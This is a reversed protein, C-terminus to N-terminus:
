RYNFLLATCLEALHPTGSYQRATSIARQQWRQHLTEINNPLARGGCQDNHPQGHWTSPSQDLSIEQEIAPYRGLWNYIHNLPKGICAPFLVARDPLRFGALLLLANVEHDCALHWRRLDNVQPARWHGAVCHWALHAQLFRRTVSDLEASYGANFFLHYGDTIALPSTPSTVPVLELASALKFTIPQEAKWDRRDAQWLMRQERAQTERQNQSLPSIRNDDTECQRQVHYM